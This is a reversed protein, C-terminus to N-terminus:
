YAWIEEVITKVNVDYYPKKAFESRLVNVIKDQKNKPLIYFAQKPM